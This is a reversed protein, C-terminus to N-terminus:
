LLFTDQTEMTYILINFLLNKKRAWIKNETKILMIHSKLNMIVTKVNKNNFEKTQLNNILNEIWKFVIM